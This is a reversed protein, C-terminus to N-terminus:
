GKELLRDIYSMAKDFLRLLEESNELVDGFLAPLSEEIYEHVIDNRLDKMLRLKEVSDILGRKHARNVVDILTGQNEFEYLDITRYLKRVLFDIGRAYRACLTEFRGFEDPAYRTKIGIDRCEKLSYELWFRQKELLQGDQRLKEIV